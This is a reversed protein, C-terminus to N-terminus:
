ICEARDQWTWIGQDSWQGPDGPSGNVHLTGGYGVNAADTHMIGDPALPRIPRGDGMEKALQQWANLDRDVPSEPPLTRWEALFRPYRCTKHVYRRLSQPFLFSRLANSVVAFCLSRLVLALKRSFGLSTRVKCTTTSLSGDRTGQSNEPSCHLIADVLHRHHLGPARSGNLRFM